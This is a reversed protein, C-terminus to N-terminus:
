CGGAHQRRIRGCLGQGMIVPARCSWNEFSIFMLRDQIKFCNKKSNQMWCIHGLALAFVAQAPTAVNEEREGPLLPFQSRDADLRFREIHVM